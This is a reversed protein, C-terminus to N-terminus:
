ANKYTAFANLGVLMKFAHARSHKIRDEDRSTSANFRQALLAAHHVPHTLCKTMELSNTRSALSDVRHLGCSFDVTHCERSGTTVIHDVGVTDDSGSCRLRLREPFNDVHDFTRLVEDICLSEVYRLM